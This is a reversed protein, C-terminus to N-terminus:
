ELPLDRWHTLGMDKAEKVFACWLLAVTAAKLDDGKSYGMSQGYAAHIVKEAALAELENINM